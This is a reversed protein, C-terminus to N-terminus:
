PIQAVSGEVHAIAPAPGLVTERYAPLAVVLEVAAIIAAMRQLHHRSMFVPLTAFMNPYKELFPQPLDHTTLDAELDRKLAESDLSICFCQRNLREVGRGEPQPDAGGHPAPTIHPDANKQTMRIDAKRADDGAM